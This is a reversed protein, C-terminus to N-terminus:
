IELLTHTLAHSLSMFVTCVYLLYICVGGGVCVGPNIFLRKPSRKFSNRLSKLPNEVSNVPSNPFTEFRKQYTKLPGGKCGRWCLLTIGKLCPTLPYKWYVYKIERSSGWRPKKSAKKNAKRDTKLWNESRIKSSLNGQVWELFPEAVGGM